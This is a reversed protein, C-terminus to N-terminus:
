HTKNREHIRYDRYIDCFINEISIELRSNSIVIPTRQATKKKKFLKLSAHKM